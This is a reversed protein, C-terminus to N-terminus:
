PSIRKHAGLRKSASCDSVDRSSSTAAPSSNADEEASELDYGLLRLTDDNLLTTTAGTDLALRLYSDAAPGFIRATVIVLGQAANFESTM